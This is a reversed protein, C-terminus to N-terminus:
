LEDERDSVSLTAGSQKKLIKQFFESNITM